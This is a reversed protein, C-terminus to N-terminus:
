GAKAEVCYLAEERLCEVAFAFVAQLSEQRLSPYNELIQKETWGTALLELIFEVALRTNKVVPKGALIDPDSHIHNRWNM